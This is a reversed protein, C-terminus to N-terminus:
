RTTSSARSAAKSPRSGGAREAEPRADPNVRPGAGERGQLFWGCALLFLGAAIAVINGAILKDSAVSLASKERPAMFALWFVYDTDSAEIALPKQPVRATAMTWVGKPERPPVAPFRKGAGPDLLSLSITKRGKKLGGFVPFELYAYRPAPLPKSRFLGQTRDGEPGYSGWVPEFLNIAYAAHMGPMSFGTAVDQEVHLPLRISAPLIERIRDSRLYAALTFHDPHPLEEARKGLLFHIDDTRLFQLVSERSRQQRANRDGADILLETNTVTLVGATFLAAWAAACLKFATRSRAGNGLLGPLLCLALGNAFAGLACIDMYRSAPGGSFGGRFVAMGLANIFVWVGLGAAWLEAKGPEGGRRFSLAVMVILPAWLLPWLWVSDVFPWSMTRGFTSMFQAANKTLMGYNHSEVKVALWLAAVGAAAALTLAPARWASRDRALRYAMLAAVAAAAALGSGVSFLAAVAAACGLWWRATFPRHMGLLWLTLISFDVFFYFQSQNAWVTNEWSFPLAFAAAALAMVPAAHRRGLANWALLALGAGICSHMTSMAVSECLNDWQGNLMFVGLSLLRAFFIRHENVPAFMSRWTLNGDEFPLYVTWPMQWYDWFAASFGYHQLTWLRAGFIFLFLGLFAFAYRRPASLLSRVAGAALLAALLLGLAWITALAGRTFRPGQFVLTDVPYVNKILLAPYDENGSRKVVLGDETPRMEARQNLSEINEPGAFKLIEGGRTIRVNRLTMSGPQQLPDLRISTLPENGEPVPVAVHSFGDSAPLDFKVARQGDAILMGQAPQATMADFELQLGPKTQPANESWVAFLAWLVTFSLLLAALFSYLYNIKKQEMDPQLIHRQGPIQLFYIAGAAIGTYLHPTNARM